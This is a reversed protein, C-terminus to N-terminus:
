RVFVGGLFSPDAVLFSDLQGSGVGFVRVRPANGAGGGVVIDARGDGNIDATAVNVGGPVTPDFALAALLEAGDTGRFARVIGPGAATGTVVDALGDGDVDGAAVNVGAPMGPFAMLARAMGGTLGDSVVVVPAIGAAGVILDARGDGNVDGAAVNVGVPASGFALFSRAMGGTAGDFVTVLSAGSAAGVLIDAKGDGNVDGVAVTAGVPANGFPLFSRVEQGTRGDYVKVLSLGSATATVLDAVGDGTVDGTAVRVGGQFDTGYPPLRWREVGYAFDFVRVLPGASAAVLSPGIARGALAAQAAM